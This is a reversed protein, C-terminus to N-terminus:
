TARRARARPEPAPMPLPAPLSVQEMPAEAARPAGQPAHSAGSRGLGVVAVSGALAIAAAATAYLKVSAGKVAAAELPKGFPILMAM